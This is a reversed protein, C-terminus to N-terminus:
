AYLQLLTRPLSSTTRASNSVLRLIIQGCLVGTCRALCRSGRTTPDELDFRRRTLATTSSALTLAFDLRNELQHNTNIQNSLFTNNAPPQHNIQESLFTNSSPPQYTQTRSSIWYPASLSCACSLTGCSRLILVQHVCFNYEVVSSRGAVDVRYWSSQSSM